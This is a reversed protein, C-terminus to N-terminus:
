DTLPPPSGCHERYWTEFILAAAVSDIPVGAAPPRGTLQQIQDRADFSSLREDVTLCPKGFRGHLRRGFRAARQSMESTSGDMNLPIGVLFADPEWDAILAAVLSWDPQGERAKLLTLPTATGTICNGIAVGIKQTGFDFSLLQKYRTVDLSHDTDPM